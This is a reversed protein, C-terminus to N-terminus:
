FLRAPVLASPESPLRDPVPLDLDLTLASHDTLRGAEDRVDHVYTCGSVTPVLDRAVFAHDYRYGDGTRGVWSYEDEHPHCLRYTDVLGNAELCRYFDYEFPKFFPYRPRHDPELVNLDGVLVSPMDSCAALEEGLECLFRRKREVKESTADRSPVYVAIIRVARGNALPLIASAVRERQYLPRGAWADAELPLRSAIMAGYQGTAPAHGAVAYGARRFADALLKCGASAKTETLALIDEPRAALWELQRQARDESPNGVNVTLLRLRPPDAPM